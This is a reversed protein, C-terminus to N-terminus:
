EYLMTLDLVLKAGTGLFLFVSPFSWHGILSYNNSWLVGIFLEFGFVLIETAVFEKQPM